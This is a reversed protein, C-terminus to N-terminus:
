DAYKADYGEQIMDMYDQLGLKNLQEVYGDWDKDVDMYGTAFKAFSEIVYDTITTQLLTYDTVKEPVVVLPPVVESADPAVAAYPISEQYLMTELAANFDPAQKWDPYEITVTEKLGDDPRGHPINNGWALNQDKIDGGSMLATFIAQEGKINLEGDTAARWTVGEEGYSTFMKSEDSYFWDVWDIIAQPNEATNTIVFVGSEAGFKAGYNAATVFGDSGKIPPLAEYQSWKDTDDGLVLFNVGGFGMGVIPEDGQLNSQKLVDNGQTFTEPSILGEAYLDAIYRLGERYEDQVPVYALDGNDDFMVRTEGDTYVFPTMLWGDPSTRWGDIASSIPLEDNMGNGNPDQTKFAVLVEKLEETTTPMELGLNDLWQTNIWAKQSYNCHYCTGSSPLAYINGDLSTILKEVSPYEDLLAKIHVSNDIYENLSVFIGQSGYQLLESDSFMAGGFNNTTNIADPLDGSAIVVSRKEAWGDIPTVQWNVHVGTMKEYEITCWNDEISLNNANTWPILISIEVPEAPTDASDTAKDVTEKGASDASETKCSTLTFSLVLIVALMFVTLKKM